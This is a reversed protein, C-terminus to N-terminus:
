DAVSSVGGKLKRWNVFSKSIAVLKIAPTLCILKDNSDTIGIIKKDQVLFKYKKLNM